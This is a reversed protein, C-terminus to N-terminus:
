HDHSHAVRARESEVAADAHDLACQHVEITLHALALGGLVTNRYFDVDRPKSTVISVICSRRGPGLEWVHLDAVRVDDIAELKQRVLQEHKSSSVVDLLQRSAQRCLSGAWWVIVIGGIIGMTPDLFWLGAWKGLALAIIAMVSTLADALVHIYAARMNFDLTGAQPKADHHHHHHHDHGDHGAHHHDHHHHHHHHGAGYHHGKGLLFVSGLNVALGIAAVALAEDYDIHGPDLLHEISEVGLLLAVIALVVGSTYGALAYVKGTGFSFADNGARTRAYWYAVLTLGLAGVHTGMHWGDAELAKSGTLKGVVLEGVMMVAALAVVWRTRREGARNHEEDDADEHHVHASLEHANM